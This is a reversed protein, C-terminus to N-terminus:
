TVNKLDSASSGAAKACEVITAKLKNLDFQASIINEVSNCEVFIM